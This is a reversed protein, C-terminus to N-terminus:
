CMAPVLLRWSLVVRQSILLGLKRSGTKKELAYRKHGLMAKAAPLLKKPLGIFHYHNYYRIM